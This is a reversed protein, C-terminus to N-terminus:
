WQLVLTDWPRSFIIPLGRQAAETQLWQGYLWSARAQTQQEDLTRQDFGRGRGCMNALIADEEPEIVFLSCVQDAIMLSPSHEQGPFDRKAALLPTIGDGEIILPGAGAVVVHHAAIIALSPVLAEGVRILGDRQAGASQEWVGPDAVFYHLDPYQEVTTFAQLALRVDDVLLYSVGFHRALAQTVVTKGVGSSGGILLVRWPQNDTFTNMSRM